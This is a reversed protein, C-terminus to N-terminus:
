QWIIPRRQRRVVIALAIIAVLLLGVIQQPISDAIDNTSFSSSADASREGLSLRWTNYGCLTESGLTQLNYDVLGNLDEVGKAQRLNLLVLLNAATDSYPHIQAYHATVGTDTFANDPLADIEAQHQQLRLALQQIDADSSQAAVALIAPVSEAWALHEGHKAMNHTYRYGNKQWSELLHYLDDSLGGGHSSAVVPTFAGALLALCSILLTRM